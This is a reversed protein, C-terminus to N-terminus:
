RGLNKGADAGNSISTERRRHFLIAVLAANGITLYLPYIFYVLAADAAALYGFLCGGLALSYTLLSESAPDRWSKLWTPLFGFLDTIVVALLTWLPDGVVLLCVFSALGGLLAVADVRSFGSAGRFLVLLFVIAECLVFFLNFVAERRGGAQLVALLSAVGLMLWLFWSVRNPRVKGKLIEYAYPVVFALNLISSITLFLGRALNM